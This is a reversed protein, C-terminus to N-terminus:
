KQAGLNNPIYSRKEDVYKNRKIVEKPNKVEM